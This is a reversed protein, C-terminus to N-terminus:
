LEAFPEAARLPVIEDGVRRQSQMLRDLAIELAFVDPHEKVADQVRDRDLVHGSDTREKRPQEAAQGLESQRDATRTRNRERELPEEIVVARSQDAVGM